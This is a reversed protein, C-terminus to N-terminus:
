DWLQSVGTMTTKRTTTTMKTTTRWRTTTRRRRPAMMMLGNGEIDKIDERFGCTEIKDWLQSVRTMITTRTTTTTM